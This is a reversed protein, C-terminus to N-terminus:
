RRPRLAPDDMVVKDLADPNLVKVRGNGNPKVWLHITPRRGPIVKLEFDFNDGFKTSLAPVERRLVDSSPEKPYSKAWAKLLRDRNTQELDSEFTSDSYKDLLYKKLAEGVGRVGVIGKITMNAIVKAGGEDYLDFRAYGDDDRRKGLGEIRVERTTGSVEYEDFKPRSPLEAKASSASPRSKSPGAEAFTPAGMVLGMLVVALLSRKM